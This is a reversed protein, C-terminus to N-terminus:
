GTIRCHIGVQNSLYLRVLHYLIFYLKFRRKASPLHDCNHFIGTKVGPRIFVRRLIPKLNPRLILQNFFSYYFQDYFWIRQGIRRGFEEVLEEVATKVTWSSPHMWFSSTFLTTVKWKTMDDYHPCADCKLPFRVIFFSVHPILSIRKILM